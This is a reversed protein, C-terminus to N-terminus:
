SLLELIFKGFREGAKSDTFINSLNTWNGVSPNTYPLVFTTDAARTIAVLSFVVIM